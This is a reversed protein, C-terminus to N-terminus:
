KVRRFIANGGVIGQREGTQAMRRMACSSYHKETLQYGRAQLLVMITEADANMEVQITLPAAPSDLLRIMGQLIRLENGDVDIKIHHPAKVRGTELLREVTTAYKLEAIEGGGIDVGEGSTPSFQSNSSGPNVSDYTFDSFGDEGDLAVSCPIVVGQLNNQILNVILRAFNAAHPEFAYVKGEPGTKRAAVITYVGINAGIDYFVQRPKVETKIWKVTGPEKSFLKLCRNLERVTECRFRYSSSGDVIEVDRASRQRYELM